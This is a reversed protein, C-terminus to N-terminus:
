REPWQGPDRSRGESRQVAPRTPKGSGQPSGGGSSGGQRQQRQAPQRQQRQAPQRQAPQREQGAPQTRQQARERRERRERREQSERSSRPQAAPPKQKRVESECYPCVGWKPDLPKNCSRCPSKLKRECNPCRMFNREVPYECHPCSQEILERVRLESARIELEREHRDEIFEPPRLITYIITGLFPFLAAATACAILVPDEIRRRADLYTWYILAFYVMVLFLVLLNTVISLGSSSIGFLAMNM